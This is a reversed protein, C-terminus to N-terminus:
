RTRRRAAALGALAAGLLALSGPEPVNNSSSVNTFVFNEDNYNLDGGGQLDEFAVFIGAPVLLDGGFDTSYVHNVGDSNMSKVSYWPGVGGPSLNIMEFVISDGANVSGLDLAEGIASTHNNLGQIGTGVGNVLMTLENVYAATTGMFYATIPGTATATFSYLVPNEVGPNPYPIPGAHVTVPAAALSSIVILFRAMTSRITKTTTTTRRM